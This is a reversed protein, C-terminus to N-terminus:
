LVAGTCSHQLFQVILKLIKALPQLPAFLEDHGAHQVCCANMRVGIVGDDGEVISHHLGQALIRGDVTEVIGLVADTVQGFDSNAEVFGQLQDVAIANLQAIHHGDVVRPAFHVGIAVDAIWHVIGAQHRGHLALLLPLEWQHVEVLQEGEDHPEGDLHEVEVVMGDGDRGYREVYYKSSDVKTVFM